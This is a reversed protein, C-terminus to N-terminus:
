IELKAQKQLVAAQLSFESGHADDSGIFNFHEASCGERADLNNGPKVFLNRFAPSLHVM